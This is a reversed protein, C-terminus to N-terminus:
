WALYTWDLWVETFWSFIIEWQVAIDTLLVIHDPERTLSTASTAPLHYPLAHRPLSSPSCTRPTRGNRVHVWSHNQVRTQHRECTFSLLHHFQKGGVRLQLNYKHPVAPSSQGHRPLWALARSPSVTALMSPSSSSLQKAVMCTVSPLKGIPSFSRLLELNFNM